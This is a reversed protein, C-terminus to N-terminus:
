QISILEDIFIIDANPPINAQPMGAEGYALASPITIKWKDGVSMLQLAEVWGPIVGNAPFSVPNGREISSDFVTGDELYGTYHVTVTKGTSPSSGGGRKNYIMRLGTDTKVINKDQTTTNEM